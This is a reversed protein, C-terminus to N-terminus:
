DEVGTRNENWIELSALEFKITAYDAGFRLMQENMRRDSSIAVIIEPRKAGAAVDINLQQLVQLGTFPPMFHDLLLVNPKIEEIYKQHNKSNWFQTIEVHNLDIGGSTLLASIDFGDEFALVKM